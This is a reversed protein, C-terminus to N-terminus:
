NPRTLSQPESVHGNLVAGSLLGPLALGYSIQKILKGASGLAPSAVYSGCFYYIVIGAVIYTITVVTQCLVLAKNYQRPDRMEAVIPFFLPTGAYAFVYTGFAATAEGFTPNGILKYDSKWEGEQPAADPRDQTGVGIVVVFGEL